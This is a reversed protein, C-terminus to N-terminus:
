QSIDLSTPVGTPFFYSHTKQLKQLDWIKVQWEKGETVIYNGSLDVAMLTVPAGKHCLLLQGTSMDQYKLFGARGISVLLWHYPLFDIAIPDNHTDLKHIKAGNDDYMYAHNAHAVQQGYIVSYWGSQDYKCGYPSYPLTQEDLHSCKLEVQTLFTKWEMDNKAKVFESDESNLIVQADTAAVAAELRKTKYVQLKAKVVKDKGHVHKELACKQYGTM